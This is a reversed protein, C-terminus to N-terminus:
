QLPGWEDFVFQAFQRTFHDEAFTTLQRIFSVRSGGPLVDQVHYFVGRHYRFCIYDFRGATFTTNCVVLQGDQFDYVAADILREDPIYVFEEKFLMYDTEAYPKVGEPIAMVDRVIEYRKPICDVTVGTALAVKGAVPADQKGMAVPAVEPALPQTLLTNEFTKLAPPEVPFVELSGDEKREIRRRATEVKKITVHDILNEIKPLYKDLFHLYDEFFVEIKRNGGILVLGLSDFQERKDAMTEVAELIKRYKRLFAMNVLYDRYEGAFKERLFLRYTDPVISIKASNELMELQDLVPFLGSLMLRIEDAFAVLAGTKTSKLIHNYLINPARKEIASRLKAVNGLGRM